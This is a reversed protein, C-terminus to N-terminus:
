NIAGKIMTGAPPLINSETSHIVVNDKSFVKVIDINFEDSSIKGIDCPQGGGGPYFATQDLIIENNSSEIVKAEFEKIYSNFNYLLETM